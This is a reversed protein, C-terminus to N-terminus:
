ICVAGLDVHAGFAIGVGDALSEAVRVTFAEVVLMTGPFLPGSFRYELYNSSRFIYM